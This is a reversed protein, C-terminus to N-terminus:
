SLPCRGCMGRACYETHLTLGGQLAQATAFPRAGDRTLWGRLPQLLGYTGPAPLRDFQREVEQDNWAHSALAVPLLANVALELAQARGVGEVTLANPLACGAALPSPWDPSAGDPWLRAILAAAGELRRVPDALPRAGARRLVVTAAVLRLEAAIARAHVEAGAARELLAPLPLRAAISAFAARNAPAALYELLLAHLAPGPGMGEVMPQVRAAKMRLRRLGLRALAEAVPLGQAVRLACPPTFGAPFAASPATREAALVLVAIQRGSNHPTATRGTDDVSVVHLVVGGYAPDRHHGHARWGSAALHIEVDGRLLDGDLELIADRFDPGSPGGGVGPFVVRLARGDRVRLPGRVGAAWRRGFVAETAEVLIDPTAAATM